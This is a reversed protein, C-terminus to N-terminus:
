STCSPVAGQGTRLAQLADLAAQLTDVKVLRLGAPADAAAAACNGAPILFVTAGASRAAYLKQQIGGIPGVKGSSDITGTGAIRRGGTIDEPTLKDVIGLAFMLGASPGGVNDLQIRVTFPYQADERLVIGVMAVKPDDPAARTTLTLEQTAGGRRVTFRVAEGPAHRRVLQAVQDLATVATGDVAVVVDDKELRGQAPSGAVVSDVVVQTTVPYGLQRLAATTASQQSSRMEAATQQQVQQATEGKPFVSQEPVVAVTPDLWGEVAQALTLADGPGGVVSVTVLDLSGQTPYTPRGSIEILPTGGNSGLTDSVPGPGLAVYPVPLLFAVAVLAVLLFAAVMASTARRSM